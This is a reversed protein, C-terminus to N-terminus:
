PVLSQQKNNRISMSGAGSEGGAMRHGTEGSMNKRGVVACSRGGVQADGTDTGAYWSFGTM